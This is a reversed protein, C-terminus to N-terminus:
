LIGSLIVCIITIKVCNKESTASVTTLYTTRASESLQLFQLFCEEFLDSNM